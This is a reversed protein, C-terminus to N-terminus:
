SKRTLVSWLSNVYRLKAKGMPLELHMKESNPFANLRDIEPKLRLLEQEVNDGALVDDLRHMMDRAEEMRRIGVEAIDDPVAGYKQKLKVLRLIAEYASDVIEDRTMWETEYNLSYKWSPSVLGQRFQEVETFLVKYGYKEPQEYGLSGPDLFPSIPALFLALKDGANFKKMLYGCYDVTDMVSKVDQGPIGTMYFVDMRGCGAELADAITQELAEDTYNRGAKKRIEYDHSEPSMEMCFGPAAEGIRRMNEKSIPSFLEFILQNKVPNKKILRLIEEAYAEGNQYLDGLIFVPGRSFRAIQHLNRVVSEPTRFVPKDRHHYNRFAANSGGCIVCNHNCGRCTIVATIPYRLWDSVPTYSLLDRYRFVSSIVGGYHNIMVNEIDNPINTFPNIKMTGASDKWVLNPIEAPDKGKKLSDMLMRFPEETSDGRIIFDIEPYRILQEHFYTSSFGGFVVKSEPHYKKVLRAVEISGHSHVMWHLDIGFVPAKLNKIMEKADFNRNRIMHVALNAIRVRYGAKELYEAISTLGIPYMEFVPSPPVLDSVPGYLITKERFDYVSPAHLLVLDIAM